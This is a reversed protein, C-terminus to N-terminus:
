RFEDVKDLQNFFYEELYPEIEMTWISEIEDEIPMIMFYSIGIYYNKDGIEKNIKELVDILGNINLTPLISLEQLDYINLELQKAWVKHHYQKLIDYNPAIEIFAFRRRLAHDVLAISRDATNMTGIIYVNEPITFTNGGALKIKQDRYELLYMLEGFVQALNARNIEDIILVCNDQIQAAKECFQLFKGQQLSYTIQGNETHPRIGQIFDEYSYAPHFQIVEYFGFSDSILHQALKQAIYTKGTGPSGYFIAQKKREIAKLWSKIKHDDINIEQSMKKLYYPSNPIKDDIKINISDLYDYIVPMPNDLTNFLILVFFHEFIQRFNIILKQFSSALIQNSSLRLEIYKSLWENEQLWSIFDDFYDNSYGNFKSEYDIIDTVSPYEDDDDDDDDDDDNNDDDDNDDIIHLDIELREGGYFINDNSMIDLIIPTIEDVYKKGNNMSIM